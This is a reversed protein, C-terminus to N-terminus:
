GACSLSQERKEECDGLGQQLTLTRLEVGDVTLLVDDERVGSKQAPGDPFVELIKIGLPHRQVRAGVGTLRGSIRETFKELVDKYLLVSYSDLESTVGDLLTLEVDVDEPFPQPTDQLSGLLKILGLDLRELEIGAVDVEAFAADLGRHFRIVGEESSVILWPVESSSSLRQSWYRRVKFTRMCLYNENILNTARIIMEQAGVLQTLLTILFM